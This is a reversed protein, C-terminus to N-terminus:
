LSPAELQHCRTAQQGIRDRRDGETKAQHETGGTQRVDQHAEEGDAVGLFGALRHEVSGAEDAEEEVHDEQHAQACEEDDALVGLEEFPPTTPPL